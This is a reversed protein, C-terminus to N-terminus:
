NGACSKPCSSKACASGSSGSMKVSSHVPGVKFPFAGTKQPSPVSVLREIDKSDCHPCSAVDDGIVLEEFQKDCKSCYFDFMPM